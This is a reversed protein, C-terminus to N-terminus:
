AHISYLATPIGCKTGPRTHKGGTNNLRNDNKRLVNM